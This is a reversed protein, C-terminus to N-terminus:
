APAKTFDHSAVHRCTHVSQEGHTVHRITCWTVIQMADFNNAALRVQFTVRLAVRNLRVHVFRVNRVVAAAAQKKSRRRRRGQRASGAAKGAAHPQGQGESSFRRHPNLKSLPSGQAHLCSLWSVAATADVANTSAAPGLAALVRPRPPHAFASLVMCVLLAHWTASVTRARSQRGTQYVLTLLPM